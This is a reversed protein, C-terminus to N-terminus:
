IICPVQADHVQSALWEDRHVVCLAEYSGTGVSMRAEIGLLSAMRSAWSFADGLDEFMAECHTRALTSADRLLFPTRSFSSACQADLVIYWDAGQQLGLATDSSQADVYVDHEEFDYSQLTGHPGNGTLVPRSQKLM